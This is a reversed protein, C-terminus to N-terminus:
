HACRWRCFLIDIEIFVDESSLFATMMEIIGEAQFLLNM